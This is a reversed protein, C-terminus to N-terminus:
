LLDALCPRDSPCRLSRLMQCRLLLAELPALACGPEGASGAADSPVPVPLRGPLGDPMPVPPRGLAGDNDRLIPDATSVAAQTERAVKHEPRKAHRAKGGLCPPQKAQPASGRAAGGTGAQQAPLGGYSQAAASAPAPRFCDDILLHELTGAHPGLAAALGGPTLSM